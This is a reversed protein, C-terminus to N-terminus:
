LPAAFPQALWRPLVDKEFAVRFEKSGFRPGLPVNMIGGTSEVGTGPYFLGTYITGSSYRAGMDEKVDGLLM